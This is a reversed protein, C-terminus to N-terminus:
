RCRHATVLKTIELSNKGVAALICFVVEGQRSQNCNLGWWLGGLFPSKRQGHFFYPTSHQIKKSFSPFVCLHHRGASRLVRTSVCFPCSHELAFRRPYQQDVNGSQLPPSCLVSRRNCKQASPSKGLEDTIVCMHYSQSLVDCCPGLSTHDKSDVSPNSPGHTPARFLSM